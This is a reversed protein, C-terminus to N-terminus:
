RSYSTYRGPTSGADILRAIVPHGLRALLCREEALRQQLRPDVYGARILKLAVVQSFGEGAREALFVTGMGGEGIRRILRYPGIWELAPTPDQDDDDLRGVLGQGEHAALLSLVESRLIADGKCADTLFASRNSAPHQLAEHFLEQVSEWRDVTM